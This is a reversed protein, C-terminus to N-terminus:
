PAFARFGTVPQVQSPSEVQAYGHYAISPDLWRGSRHSSEALRDSRAQYSTVRGPAAREPRTRSARISYKAATNSAATQDLRPLPSAACRGTDLAHGRRSPCPLLWPLAGAVDSRRCVAGVVGTQTHSLALAPRLRRLELRAHGSRPHDGCVTSFGPSAQAPRDAPRGNWRGARTRSLAHGGRAAAPVCAM